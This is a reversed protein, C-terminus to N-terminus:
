EFLKLLGGVTNQLTKKIMKPATLNHEIKPASLTGSVHINMLGETPNLIDLLSSTTSTSVPLELKPTVNFDLTQDLMDLWGESILSVSASKLTFDNTEIKGDIFTFTGGADTIIVSGGQVSTSLISLIKTLIELDWLYGETIRLDSKGALSKAGTTDGKLTGNISLFGALQQNKLPTDKKLLELSTRELNITSDFPFSPQILDLSGIVNLKGGYVSAKIELPQIAGDKQNVNVSVREITYGMADLAPTEIMVASNLQQWNVPDGKVHANVTLRGTLKLDNILKAYQPAIKPIDKLSVKSSATIDVQPKTGAPIQITGNAKLSSEFCAANLGKLTLTDGTKKLEIDATLTDTKLSSIILPANFDDLTGNLTYTQGQFDASLQNWALKTGSYTLTGNINALAQQLTGSAINVKKLLAIAKVGQKALLSAKGNIDASLDITGTVSLANDKMIQPIVAAIVRLDINKAETKLDLNLDAFNRATGNILVPIAFVSLSFDKLFVEDTKIQLLGHITDIDNVIPLGKLSGNKLEISGDYSLSGQGAPPIVAHLVATPIGSFTIQETGIPISAGLGTFAPSTKIDIIGNKLELITGPATLSTKFATGSFAAALDKVTVNAQAHLTTGTQAANLQSLALSGAQVNQGEAIVATPSALDANTSLTWDKGNLSFRTDAATLDASFQQGNALRIDAGKLGATGQFRIGNPDSTFNFGTLSLDGSAKIGDVTEANIASIDADGSVNITNGNISLAAKIHSLAATKVPITFARPIFRLYKETLINNLEISAKVASSRLNMRGDFNVTSKTSPIVINGAVQVNGTLSLSGKLDIPTIIESFNDGGVMDTLKLSANQISFGSIIIDMPEATDKKSPASNGLAALDSFNWANENFRSIRASLNIITVSPLIIKKQLLAPFLLQASAQDIHVFAEAPDEKSYITLDTIIFGNLVNYSLSALTVRRHITDEAAKLILGKIQVPLLIKNVYYLGACLVVSLIALTLLLKKLM